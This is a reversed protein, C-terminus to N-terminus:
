KTGRKPTCKHATCDVVRWGEPGETLVAVELAMLEMLWSGVEAAAPDSLPGQLREAAAPDAGVLLAEGARQAAM